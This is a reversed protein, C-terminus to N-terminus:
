FLVIPLYVYPTCINKVGDFTKTDLAKYVVINNKAIFPNDWDNEHINSKELCM